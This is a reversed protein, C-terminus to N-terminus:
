QEKKKIIISHRRVRKKPEEASAAKQLGIREKAEDLTLNGGTDILEPSEKADRIEKYMKGKQMRVQSELRMQEGKNMDEMERAMKEAQKMIQARQEPKMDKLIDVVDKFGSRELKKYNVGDAANAANAQSFLLSVILFTLIIATKKM